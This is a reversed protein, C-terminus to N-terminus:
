TFGSRDLAQFLYGHFTSGRNTDFNIDDGGIVPWQHRLNHTNISIVSVHSQFDSLSSMPYAVLGFAQQAAEEAICDAITARFITGSRLRGVLNLGGIGDKGDLFLGTDVSLKSLAPDTLSSLVQGTAAACRVAAPYVPGSGDWADRTVPKVTADSSALNRAIDLMVHHRYGGGFMRLKKGGRHFWAEIASQNANIGTPDFLYLEDIKDPRTNMAAFADDGGSSFGAVAIRGIRLSDCVSTAITGDAWLSRCISALLEPFRSDIV